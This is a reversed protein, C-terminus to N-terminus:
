EDDEDVPDDKIEKMETQERFKENLNAFNSLLDDGHDLLVKFELYSMKFRESSYSNKPNYFRIVENGNKELALNIEMENIKFKKELIEKMKDKKDVEWGVVM